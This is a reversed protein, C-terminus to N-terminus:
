EFIAISGDSDYKISLLNECSVKFTGSDILSDGACNGFIVQGDSYAIMKFDGRASDCPGTDYKVECISNLRCAAMDYTTGTNRSTWTSMAKKTPSCSSSSSKKGCSALTLIVLLISLHKM